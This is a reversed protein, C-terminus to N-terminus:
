RKIYMKDYRETLQTPSNAKDKRGFYISLIFLVISGLFSRFGMFTFPGIDAAVVKQVVYNAGWILAAVILMINAMMIKKKDM